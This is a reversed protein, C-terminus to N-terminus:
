LQAGDIFLQDLQPETIGIAAALTVLFPNNREFDNSESWYLNALDRQMQDPIADITPQVLSLLGAILLQQKAQRRTIKFPVNLVPVYDAITEDTLLAIEEPSLTYPYVEEGVVKDADIGGIRNHRFNSLGDLTLPAPPEPEVVEPVEPLDEIIELEDSM